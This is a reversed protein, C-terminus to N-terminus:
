RSERLGSLAGTAENIVVAWDGHRTAIIGSLRGGIYYISDYGHVDWEPMPLALRFRESGDCNVVLANRPGAISYAEVVALGSRDSLLCVDQFPASSIRAVDLAGCKWTIRASGSQWELDSVRM